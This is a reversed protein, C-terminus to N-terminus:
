DEIGRLRKEEQVREKTFQMQLWDELTLHGQRIEREIANDRIDGQHWNIVKRILEAKSGNGFDPLQEYRRGGYGKRKIRDGGKVYRDLEAKAGQRSAMKLDHYTWPQFEKSVQPHIKRRPDSINLDLRVIENLIPDQEIERIHAPWFAGRQEPIPRGWFDLRPPLAEWDLLGFPGKYIRYKPDMFDEPSPPIPGTMGLKRRIKGLSGRAVRVYPDQMKSMYGFAAPVVLQTLSEFLRTAYRANPDRTTFANVWDSAGRSFSQDNINQSLAVLGALLSLGLDRDDEEVKDIFGFIDLWLGFVTSVPDFNRFNYNKGKITVSYDVGGMAQIARRVGPVSTLAGRAQESEYLEYLMTAMGSAAIIRGVAQDQAEGGSKGRIAKWWAPDVLPLARRGAWININVPTRKFWLVPRPIDTVIRRLRPNEIQNTFTHEDALARAGESVERALQSVDAEKDARLLYVEQVVDHTRQSLEDGELGQNRLKRRALVRTNARDHLVKFFADEAQLAGFITQTYNRAFKNNLASEFPLDIKTLLDINQGPSLKPIHLVKGFLRAAEPLATLYGYMLEHAESEFVRANQHELLKREGRLTELQSEIERAELRGEARRLNDPNLARRWSDQLGKEKGNLEAIRRARKRYRPTVTRAGGALGSLQREALDWTLAGLNGVMNRFHTWPSTLMGALILEKAKAWNTPKRLGNLVV